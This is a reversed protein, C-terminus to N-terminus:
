DEYISSPAIMSKPKFAVRSPGRFTIRLNSLFKLVTLIWVVFMTLFFLLLEVFYGVMVVIVVIPILAALGAFAMGAGGMTYTVVNGSVSIINIPNLLQWITVLTARLLQLIGMGAGVAAGAAGVGLDLMLSKTSKAKAAQEQDLERFSVLYYCLFCYFTFFTLLLVGKDHAGIQPIWHNTHPAVFWNILTMVLYFLMLWTVVWNGNWAYGVTEPKRFKIKLMWSGIVCLLPVLMILITIPRPVNISLLLNYM